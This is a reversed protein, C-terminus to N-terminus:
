ASLALLLSSLAFAFVSILFAYDQCAHISLLVFTTNVIAVNRVLFKSHGFIPFDAITHDCFTTNNFALLSTRKTFHLSVYGSVIKGVDLLM